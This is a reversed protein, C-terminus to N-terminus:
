APVDPINNELNNVKTNLKNFKTDKVVNKSVVATLNKLDVSVVKLKGVDLDDVKKKLNNLGTSVNVLENSDLKDIEAQM